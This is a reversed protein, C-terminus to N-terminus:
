CPCVRLAVIHERAWRRYFSAGGTTLGLKLVAGRLEDAHASPLAAAAAPPTQSAAGAEAEAAAAGAADRAQRAAVGARVGAEMKAGAAEGVRREAHAGEGLTQHITSAVDFSAM